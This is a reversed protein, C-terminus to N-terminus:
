IPSGPVQHTLVAVISNQQFHVHESPFPCLLLGNLLELSPM